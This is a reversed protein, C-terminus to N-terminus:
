VKHKYLNALHSAEAEGRAVKRGSVKSGNSRRFFKGVSLYYDIM